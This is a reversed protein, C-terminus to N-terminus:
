MIHIILRLRYLSARKGHRTGEPARFSTSKGTFVQQMLQAVRYAKGDLHAPATDRKLNQQAQRHTPLSLVDGRQRILKLISASHLESRLPITM